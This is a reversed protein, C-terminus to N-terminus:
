FKGVNDALTHTQLYATTAGQQVPTVTTGMLAQLMLGMNKTGVELDLPGKGDQHTVVRRGGPDLLRGAAMGTGQATHKGKKLGEKTFEYFRTPAVYTGYTSEAAVGVQAGIGAGIGM